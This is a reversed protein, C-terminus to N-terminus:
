AAINVGVGFMFGFALDASIIELNGSLQITTSLDLRKPNMTDIWALTAAKAAEPNAIIAELGLSDLIACARAKASRPKRANPNVTPQDDPILPAAKWEPKSFEVNFNFIVNQLKVIDVIYRYAPPEEGTPRYFTVVDASEVVGDKVIITSSGAKVALDRQPYTWQAADPGPVLGTAPERGYGTAPNNNAQKVIRALQRAAVVFPLDRSGPSVLQGNIRDTQRVSSVATAEAVSVATNGVFAVYPQKILQGWRGEGHDRIADLADTDDADLSNLVMTEWVSGFQALAGAVDPNLLGGTPQTVAFTVGLSPGDVWVDLANASKGAWKSVLTVATAPVNIAYTDGVAFDAAGDTLTFGLGNRDVAISGGPGPPITIPGGVANGSPDLLAFVGGDVVASTCTLEYTGSAPTGTLTLATLTGDGVNTAGPTSTLTGYALTAKVPMELIANVAAFIAGCIDSITADKRIVFGDSRINNAYVRYAGGETQTGSPTILGTAPAAGGAAALPYFTAPITGIGDGNAPFLQKAINHAPSGYGLRAGVQGATTATFKELTYVVDSSGQALVAVRQPLYLVQGGRLDKYQVDIGLVRAVASVDIAM